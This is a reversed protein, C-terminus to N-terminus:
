ETDGEEIHEPGYKKYFKIAQPVVSSWYHGETALKEYHELAADCIEEHTAKGCGTVGVTDDMRSNRDTRKEM